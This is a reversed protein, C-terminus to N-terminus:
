KTKNVDVKPDIQNGISLYGEVREVLEVKKGSEKAGRCELWRKLEVNSCSAPSKTLKSGPVDEETLIVAQDAEDIM